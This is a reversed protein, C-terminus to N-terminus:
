AVTDIAGTFRPGGAAVYGNSEGSTTRSIWFSYLRGSTLHFRLRVARGALMSLAAGNWKVGVRTGGSRVPLCQEKSFPAFVRGDVDLVEVRLEGDIDANIWFHNGSFQIPRTTLTGTSGDARRIAAQDRPLWDM